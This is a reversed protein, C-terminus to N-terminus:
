RLIATFLTVLEDDHNEPIEVSTIAGETAIPTGECTLMIKANRAFSLVRRVHGIATEDRRLELDLIMVDEDINVRVTDGLPYWRDGTLYLIELDESLERDKPFGELFEKSPFTIAIRIPTTAWIM